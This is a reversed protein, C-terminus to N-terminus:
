TLYWVAADHPPLNAAPIASIRGTWLELAQSFGTEAAESPIETWQEEESLNFAALYCGPGDRRPAIWVCVGADNWLPHACWSLKEIELLPGNTLLSLTFDDCQPLDGGIMLPSRM